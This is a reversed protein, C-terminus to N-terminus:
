PQQNATRAPLFITVRTGKEPASDIVIEGQHAEVIKQSIALGLGSGKPKSSFFPQFIKERIEPSIGPGTDAITVFVREKERGTAISLTGGAEMAEIGNKAINLIVQRLHAPDFSVQPLDPDLRLSLGLKSERLSPELRDCTEKILANLDGPRKQPESFKAYSGVEVLFDELRRIEDVIIQLKERNKEPNQSADKLVQRAFGGILMLPNKIEHSIHAAMKGLVALRESRLLDEEMRKRERLDKFHGIMGIERNNEYLVRASLWIPVLAGGKHRMWTEYNELIGAGGYAHDHIKADIEQLQGEAYLERINMKGLVEEPEYGLIHAATENFTRIVGAMDNAVIGDMCTHILLHQFYIGREVEATLEEEARQRKIQWWMGNMLLTLQRVDSEDYEDDKNGVGAVAVIREGDFVPINLHRRIEVHGEPYGKKHPNPAAYDNTIIPRRQRVAEGWLGTTELPYIIPKDIIACKEMATKSWAQMTLVTEDENMFALYGIKSETLRVGEELAFDTIEKLTAKTMQSLQWVAELRSEDLRLAAEMNATRVALGLQGALSQFFEIHERTFYGKQISAATLVGLTLTETTIPALVLSGIIEEPLLGHLRDLATTADAVSIVQPTLLCQGLFSAPEPKTVQERAELPLGRSGKIHLFGDEDLMRVACKEIGLKEGLVGLVGELLDPIYLSSALRHAAEFLVSLEAVRRKLQQESEELSSSIRGFLDFVDEMRSGLSSLFGEVVVRSAAPGISGALTREVFAALRLKERDGWESEPIAVEQLFARRAEAAKRPGILKEMFRTVHDLSPFYTYRKELPLEREGEFVDVFRRAQEEEVPSPATLLSVSVFAVTNVLLSWFFAHSLRDLGTLGLFTTPKLFAMGFPGATLITRPFWGADVLYPFVLTYAWFCFGSLLGIVAGWRTAERWYLAGIMAPVLQMVGCFAILGIDVLMVSPFIFHYGFYGLLILLLIGGRKITLLHPTIRAELKLRIALPMVLSNLLMTTVAISAVAVMATSASLGGLFVLLALYPHGTLLPIRLVFTDAQEVPFGLLLGGFAIPMVFLNMLLLFLPFLWIATLIHREDTNEVVSMHFMRPLFHIAGMALLTLVMLLSYSNKPGTNIQLLQRFEPSQQIRTFIDGWGSFLGFTVLLGLSLFALLEILSEFVVVAVLGEHRETPDLHRAGFLISFASLILAVYLATDQYIPTAFPPIVEKYVLVSFTDSISKLQLGIYPTIALLLGVTALAGLFAGKGYRLTLFDSMTTLNNEKCIRLLKRLGFWWSFAIITPGLYITLFTVGSTAAKGVSGFFTWATCYAALSLAYIYPNAIISKGRGRQRDGYYAIAFLLFLYGFAAAALLGKNLM